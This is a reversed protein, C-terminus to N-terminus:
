VAKEPMDTVSVSETQGDLNIEKAFPIFSIIVSLACLTCAFRVYKKIEDGPCLILVATCVASLVALQTFLSRIM